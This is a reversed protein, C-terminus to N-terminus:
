ANPTLFFDDIALGDDAGSADFSAWRIWFTAGNAINLGTITFNIPRRNDAVNGDLAGTAPGTVPATFDLGDVDTWTGTTLSTANTSIQFDLRDVRSLTGLRWQEGTYAVNLSTITVGTNNVFNAGITPVLSGSQLGGFARDANGSAGFSYTDGTASSGTGATYALNANSGSEVFDWGNPVSSSTGTNALTNFNEGVAVGATTLSITGAARVPAIRYLCLAAAGLVLAALLVAPRFRHSM